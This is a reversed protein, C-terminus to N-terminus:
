IILNRFIDVPKEYWYPLPPHAGLTVSNTNAWTQKGAAGFDWESFKDQDSGLTSRLSRYDLIDKAVHPLSFPGGYALQRLTQESLALGDAQIDTATMWFEAISGDWFQAATGGERSAGLDAVNCTTPTRSTASSLHTVSGDPNLIAARRNTAAVWRAVVYHWANATCTGATQGNATGAGKAYIQWQAATRCFVFSDATAGSSGVTIAAANGAATSTPYLWAGVTIPYVKAPAAENALRQSSAAVFTAAM